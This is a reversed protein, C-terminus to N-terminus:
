LSRYPHGEDVMGERHRRRCTRVASPHTKVGGSGETVAHKRLVRGLPQLGRRPTPRPQATGGTRRRDQNGCAIRPFRRSGCVGKTTMNAKAILGRFVAPPTRIGAAAEAGYEIM